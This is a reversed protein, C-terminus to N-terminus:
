EVVLHGPVDQAVRNFPCTLELECLADLCHTLQEFTMGTKTLLDDIGLGARSCAVPDEISENACEFADLMLSKCFLMEGINVNAVRKLPRHDARKNAAG